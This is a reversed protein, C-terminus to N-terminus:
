FSMKLSQTFNAVRSYRQIYKLSRVLLTPFSFTYVNLSPWHWLWLSFFMKRLSNERLEVKKELKNLRNTFISNIFLTPLRNNNNQSQSVSFFFSNIELKNMIQYIISLFSIFSILILTFFIKTSFEWQSFWM